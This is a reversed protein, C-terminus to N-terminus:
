SNLFLGNFSFSGLQFDLTLGNTQWRAGANDSQLEECKITIMQNSDYRSQLGKKSLNLKIM